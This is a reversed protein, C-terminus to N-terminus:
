ESRAKSPIFKYCPIFSVQSWTVLLSSVREIAVYAILFGTDSVAIRNRNTKQGDKLEESKSTFGKVTEPDFRQRSLAFCVPETWEASLFGM